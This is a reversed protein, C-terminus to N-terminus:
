YIQLFIQSKLTLFFRSKVDIIMFKKDGIKIALSDLFM